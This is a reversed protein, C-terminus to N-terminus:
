NQGLMESAAAAGMVKMEFASLNRRISSLLETLKATADPKGDMTMELQVARLTDRVLPNQGLRERMKQVRIVEAADIERQHDDSTKVTLEIPPLGAAAESAAQRQEESETQGLIREPNTRFGSSLALVARQSGSSLITSTMRRLSSTPAARSPTTAHVVEVTRGLRGPRSPVTILERLPKRGAVADDDAAAQNDGPTEPRFNQFVRSASLADEAPNGSRSFLPASSTSAASDGADVKQGPSSALREQLEQLTREAILRAKREEGYRAADEFQAAEATQRAKVEEQLAAAVRQAEAEAMERSAREARADMEAKARKEAERLALREMKVFRTKLDGLGEAARLHPSGLLRRVTDRKAVPQQAASVGIEESSPGIVGLQSPTPADAIEITTEAVEGEGRGKEVAERTGPGPSVVTQIKEGSLVSQLPDTALHIAVADPAEAPVQQPQTTGIPPHQIETDTQGQAPAEVLRDLPLVQQSPQTKKSFLRAIAGKKKPQESASAKGARTQALKASDEVSLNAEALDVPGDMTIAPSNEDEWNFDWAHTKRALSRRPSHLAAREKV